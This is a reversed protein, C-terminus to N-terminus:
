LIDNLANLSPSIELPARRNVLMDALREPIPPSEGLIPQIVEKFKAPHATQAIIYTQSKDLRERVFCATATHPCIFRQYRDYYDKITTQINDDSVSIVTFAGNFAQQTNLDYQLREFNSPASVDMANALTQKTNGPTFEGTKAYDSLTHNANTAIVLPGIPFGMTKAWYCATMHGLNGSPIIMGPRKSHTEYYRLSWYAFYTMQPLLRGINISNATSLCTQNSLGKDQLVEKLLSQCDDFNGIVSVPIINKDWCTIQAEQLPSIKGKPYLVIVQINGQGSFASAVASGTDGSTAVMIRLPKNLEALCGALFRAGIDKFSLTPGNYLTLLYTTNDIKDLPIEFTFANQCIKKLHLALSSGSLYLRLLADSFAIFDKKKIWDDIKIKPRENPIFLGGEDSLGTLIADEYSISLTTNRTSIYDMSM